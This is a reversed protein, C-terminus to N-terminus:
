GFIVNTIMEPNFGLSEIYSIRESRTELSYLKRQVDPQSRIVSAFALFEDRQSPELSSFAM